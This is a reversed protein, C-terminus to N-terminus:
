PRVLLGVSVEYGGECIARATGGDEPGQGRGGGLLRSTDGSCTDAAKCAGDICRGCAHVHVHSAVAQDTHILAPPCISSSTCGNLQSMKSGVRGVVGDFWWMM